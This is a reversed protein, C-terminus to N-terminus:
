RNFHSGLIHMCKRFMAIIKEFCRFTMNDWRDVSTIGVASCFWWSLSSIGRSYQVTESYEINNGVCKCM